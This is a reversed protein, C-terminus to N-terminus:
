LSRLKVITFKSFMKCWKELAKLMLLKEQKRLDENMTM